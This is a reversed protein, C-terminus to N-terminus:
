CWFENSWLMLSANIWTQEVRAGLKLKFTKIPKEFTSYLSGVNQNYSLVNTSAAVETYNELPDQRQMMKYDSNLQRLIIKGGSELSSKNKFPKSYDINFTYETNKSM